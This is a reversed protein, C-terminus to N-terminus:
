VPLLDSHFTNLKRKIIITVVNRKRDGGVLKFLLETCLGHIVGKTFLTEVLHIQRLRRYFCGAVFRVVKEFRFVFGADHFLNTLTAMTFNLKTDAFVVHCSIGNESRRM